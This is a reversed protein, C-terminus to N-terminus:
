ILNAWFMIQDFCSQYSCCKGFVVYKWVINARFFIQEFCCKSLIVNEWFLLYIAWFLIHMFCFKGLLCNDLILMQDFCCQSLVINARFCPFIPSFIPFFPLITLFFCPFNYSSLLFISPFCNYYSFSPFVVYITFFLPFCPWSPAVRPYGMIVEPWGKTVRPWGLDGQTIGPADPTVGPWRHTACQHGWPFNRSSSTM